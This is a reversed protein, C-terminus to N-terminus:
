FAQRFKAILNDLFNSQWYINQTRWDKKSDYHEVVPYEILRINGKSCIIIFNNFLRNHNVTKIDTM